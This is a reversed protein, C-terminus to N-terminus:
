HCGWVGPSKQPQVSVTRTTQKCHSSTCAQMMVHIYTRVCVFNCVCVCFCMWEPTIQVTTTITRNFYKDWTYARNSYNSPAKYMFRHAKSYIQKDSCKYNLQCVPAWIISTRHQVACMMPRMHLQVDTLSISSGTTTWSDSFHTDESFYHM